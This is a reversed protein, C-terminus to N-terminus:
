VLVGLQRGMVDVVTLTVESLQPLDYSITTTPNFPNPYNAELAYEQPLDSVPSNAVPFPKFGFDATDFREGASLTVTLPENATTLVPPVGFLSITNEDVDVCYDGPVLDTFVYAGDDTTTTTLSPTGPCAGANLAVTVGGIGSAAADNQIGDGDADNWIFDGISGTRGGGAEVILDDSAPSGTLPEAGVQATIDSTTNNFDGGSGEPVQLAVSFTCSTEPALSGGALTLLSTGTLQSGAGCIDNVPLGTAQMGALTAELDDTFTIATADGQGSYSVTFQMTVISGPSVPDDTFEKSLVLSREPNPDQVVLADSAGSSAFQGGGITASLDSTVNAYTGPIAGAPVLVAASFSCSEGPGLVGGTFILFTTGTLSSGPGCVDNLTGSTSALGAVMGGLNDTFLLGTTSETASRNTISFELNVTGGPLVPDDTFEKTLTLPTVLIDAEAINGTTAMGGVMATVNGTRNVHLGLPAAAPISLVVSFTCEAGPALSGGTFSLVDTGALQSGPGCPDTLPTDSAVLGAFVANLDDTFAIATADGPAEPGHILSFELTVNAGPAVVSESFAKRFSPPAIIELQDSAPGGEVEEAGGVLGTIVSTTNVYTGSPMDSPIDLVVDFTCSQGAALNGGTLTLGQRDTGLFAITMSSGAGCFGDAPFTVSVPFPLFTTLEDDFAIDTLSSAANTNDITFRLTATSGPSVPDDIFTKTLRPGSAAVFLDDAAPGGVVGFGGATGTISSTVNGYRGPAAGAPVQLTASFTCTAGPGLTAGSLTLTSTGTLTGGGCVDSQAGSTSELGSLVGDLDDAFIIGTAAEARSLNTISFELNVTSGPNVPDDTFEKTFAFPSPSVTLIAGAKGSSEQASSDYLLNGTTNGLVGVAGGIVDVVVECSGGAAVAPFTAVGSFFLDIVSSGAAANLTAPILDNECTTSANSPSAVTMGAPLNDAFSLFILSQANATNDITITLTSRGGFSVTNPSFSKTFGPRDTSVTLEASAVGANGASSTLDSSTNVYTGPATATVNVSVSCSVGAGVRAGSFTILEGCSPAEVVGNECTTTSASPYAVTMGAPLVDTFTVDEVGSGASNDVDVTFQLTSVSGPGIVPPLFTKDFNVNQADAGAVVAFALGLFLFRTFLRAQSDNLCGRTRTTTM